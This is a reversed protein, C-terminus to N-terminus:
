PATTFVRKESSTFSGSGRRPGRLEGSAYPSLYGGPWTAADASEFADHTEVSWKYLSAPAITFDNASVVPAHVLTQSTLVCARDLTAVSEICLLYVKAPGSWEFRTSADVGTAGKLPAVLRTVEPLELAIDGRGPALNDAYVAAVSGTQDGTTTREEAVLSITAEPLSPVLYSFTASARDDSLLELASDDPLRLYARLARTSNAGAAASVSGSVSGSVSSAAIMQPALDFEIVQLPGADQLTVPQSVHARYSTPVAPTGATDFLLTHAVGTATAPGAWSALTQVSAISPKMAFEGYPSLWTTILKQTATLPFTVGNMHLEVSASRTTTGHAVQIFPDRRTLGDIRWATRAQVHDVSSDITVVLDYSNAVDPISFSGDGATTATQAGIRVRANALAQLRTDVVRGVVPGGSVAAGAAGGQGARGQGQGARGAQGGRGADAASDRGGTGGRGAATNGSDAASGAAGKSPEGAEGASASSGATEGPEAPEGAAGNGAPESTAPLMMVGADRGGEHLPEIGLVANCGTVLGLAMLGVILTRAQKM